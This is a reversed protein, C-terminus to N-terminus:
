SKLEVVVAEFAKDSMNEEQHKVPAGWSAEGAKHQATDVKGDPTTMRGNQDTIYVVVRNLLHEHLPVAHHPPFRVRIVRVQSNEFELKYDKPDVKLPDLATKVAKGPDGEKKIEVEVIRVPASSIVESVHMGGAPSWKVEGAKYKLVAAKGGQPTIEQRGATLYIMVRNLKHEHPSTKAHPQDTVQIVRVQDNEIPTAAGQAFLSAGGAILLALFRVSHSKPHRM